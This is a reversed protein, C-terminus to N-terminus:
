NGPAGGIRFERPAISGDALTLSASVVLAPQNPIHVDVANLHESRASTVQEILLSEDLGTVRVTLSGDGGPVFSAVLRQGDYDVDLVSLLPSGVGQVYWISQAPGTPAEGRNRELRRLYVTSPSLGVGAVSVEGTTPGTATFPGAVPAGHDAARAAAGPMAAAAYQRAVDVPDLLDPRRGRDSLDQLALLTSQDRSPWVAGPAVPSARTTAPTSRTTAADERITGCGTVAAMLLAVGLM